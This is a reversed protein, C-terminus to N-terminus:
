VSTADPRAAVAAWTKDFLEAVLDVGALPPRLWPWRDTKGQWCRHMRALVRAAEAPEAGERWDSLNELELLTAGDKEEARLCAPVRVGIVPAIERYFRVESVFMQLVDPISGPAAPRRRKVFPELM